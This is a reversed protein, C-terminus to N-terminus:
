FIEGVNAIRHVLKTIEDYFQPKTVKIIQQFVPTKSEGHGFNKDDFVVIQLSSDPRLYYFIDLNFIIVRVVHDGNEPAYGSFFAGTLILESNKAFSDLARVLTGFSTQIWQLARTENQIDIATAGSVPTVMFEHHSELASKLASHTALSMLNRLEQDSDVIRKKRVLSRGQFFRVEEVDGCSWEISKREPNNIEVVQQRENSNKLDFNWTVVSWDSKEPSFNLFIQKPDRGFLNQWLSM